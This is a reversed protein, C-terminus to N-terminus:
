MGILGTQDASEDTYPKHCNVAIIGKLFCFVWFFWLSITIYNVSNVSWIHYKIKSMYFKFQAM